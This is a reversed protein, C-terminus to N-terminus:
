TAGGLETAFGEFGAGRWAAVIRESDEHSPSLAVVAGGGGAGTLKAGLAGADRALACLEEIQETSLMLGSLLMQNLNMLEGLASTDGAELAGIGNEVLAQIGDLSRRHLEPHSEKMRAVGEVMERTSSRTGTLGV